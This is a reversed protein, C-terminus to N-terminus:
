FQAFGVEGLVVGVVVFVVVDVKEALVVGCLELGEDLVAFGVEVFLELEQRWEYFYCFIEM